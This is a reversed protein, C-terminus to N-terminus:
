AVPAAGCVRSVYLHISVLRCFRQTHAEQQWVEIKKKKRKERLYAFNLSVRRCSNREGEGKSERERQRGVEKM